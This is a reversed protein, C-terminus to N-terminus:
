RALPSGNVFLESSLVNFHVSVSGDCNRRTSQRTIWHDQTKSIRCWSKEPQYNSWFEKIAEDLGSHQNQTVQEVLEPLARYTLKRYRELMVIVLSNNQDMKSHLFERVCISCQFFTSVAKPCSLISTLHHAEVNFSDLCILAVELAQAALEIRQTDITSSQVKSWLDRLQNSLSHRCSDLYDLCFEQVRDSQTLSLLRASLHIFTDIAYSAEWNEAVRRKAKRLQDLLALGFIEETLIQHSPRDIIDAQEPCEASPGAQQIIQLFLITTEAQTFDLTPMALQTLINRWQIEHGLPLTAFANYAHLSLHNPCESQSALVENPPQGDPKLRTRNLFRQLAKSRTPLAFVCLQQLTDPIVWPGM